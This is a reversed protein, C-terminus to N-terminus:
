RSQEKGRRYRFPLSKTIETVLVSFKYENKALAAVVADIAPRDYHELGRGLAYIMLKEVLNRAFLDKKDKLIKKLEAPGKFAKNDPLTGSPDVDFKGDKTRWKGIADYNEFAFGIPDM